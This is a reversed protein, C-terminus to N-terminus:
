VRERCSARGIQVNHKGTKWLTTGAAPDCAEKSTGCLAVVHEYMFVIRWSDVIQRRLLDTCTTCSLNILSFKGTLLSCRSATHRIGLHGCETLVSSVHMM